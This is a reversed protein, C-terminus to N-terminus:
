IIKGIWGRPLGVLNEQCNRIVSDIDDIFSNIDKPDYTESSEMRYPVKKYEHKPLPIKTRSKEEITQERFLYNWIIITSGSGIIIGIILVIFIIRILTKSNLNVVINNEVM